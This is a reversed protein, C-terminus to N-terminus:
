KEGDDPSVENRSDRLSQIKSRLEHIIRGQHSNLERMESIEVQLLEIQYQLQQVRRQESVAVEGAIKEVVQDALDLHPPTGFCILLGTEKHYKLNAALNEPMMEWTTEIATAVDPIGTEEDYGSDFLIEDIPYIRFDREIISSRDKYSEAMSILIMPTHVSEATFLYGEDQNWEVGAQEDRRHDILVSHYDELCKDIDVFEGTVYVKVELDAVLDTILKSVMLLNADKLTFPPIRITKVNPNIIINIKGDLAKEILGYAEQVTADHLETRLTTLLVVKREEQVTVKSSKEEQDLRDPLAPLSLFLLFMLVSLSTRMM